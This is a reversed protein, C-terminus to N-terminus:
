IGGRHDARIWYTGNWLFIALGSYTKAEALSALGNVPQNLYVSYSIANGGITTSNIWLPSIDNAPNGNSWYNPVTILYLIQGSYTGASLNIVIPFKYDVKHEVIGVMKGNPNFGVHYFSTAGINVNNLTAELYEYDNAFMKKDFFMRNVSTTDAEGILNSGVVISNNKDIISNNYGGIITNFDAGLSLSSTISNDYGNLIFNGKTKGAGTTYITNGSGNGIWSNGVTGSISNFLGNLISNRKFDDSYNATSITNIISNGSGNLISSIEPPFTTGSMFNYKGSIISSGVENVNSPNTIDYNPVSKFSNNEGALISNNFYNITNGTGAFISVYTSSTLGSNLAGAITIGKTSNSITIATNPYLDDRKVINNGSYSIWPLSSSIITGGTLRNNILTIASYTTSTSYILEM